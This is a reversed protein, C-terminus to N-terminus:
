DGRREADDSDDDYADADDDVRHMLESLVCVMGFFLMATFIGGGIKAANPDAGFAAALPPALALPILPMFVLSGILLSRGRSPQKM